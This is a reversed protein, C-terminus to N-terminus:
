PSNTARRHNLHSIELRSTGRRRLGPRRPRSVAMSAGHPDAHHTRSQRSQRARPRQVAGAVVHDHELRAVSDPAPGPRRGKRVADHDLAAPLPDLGVLVDDSPGAGLQLQRQCRVPHPEVPASHYPVHGRQGLDLPCQRRNRRLDGVLVARQLRRELGADASLVGTVRGEQPDGGRSRACRPRGTRAEVQRPGLTGPEVRGRPDHPAVLPDRQCHRLLEAVPRTTTRRDCADGRVGVARHDEQVTAIRDRDVPHDDGYRQGEQLVEGPLGPKGVPPPRAEVAQRRSDRGLERRPGDVARSGVADLVRPVRPPRPVGEVRRSVGSDAGHRAEGAARDSAVLEADLVAGAGPQAREGCEARVELEVALRQQGVPGGVGPGAAAVGVHEVPRDASAASSSWCGAPGNTRAPSNM